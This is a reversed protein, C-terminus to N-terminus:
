RPDPEEVSQSTDGADQLQKIKLDLAPLTVERWMDIEQEEATVGPRRYSVVMEGGPLTRCPFRVHFNTKSRDATQLLEDDGLPKSSHFHPLLLSGEADIIARFFLRQPNKRNQNSRRIHHDVAHRSVIYTNAWDAASPRLLSPTPHAAARGRPSASACGGLRVRKEIAM